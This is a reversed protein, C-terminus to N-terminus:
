LWLLEAVANSQEPLQQVVETLSQPFSRCIWLSRSNDLVFDRLVLMGIQDGSFRYMATLTGGDASVRYAGHWGSNTHGYDGGSQYHCM